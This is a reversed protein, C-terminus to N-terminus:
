RANDKRRRREIANNEDFRTAAGNSNGFPAGDPGDFKIGLASAKIAIMARTRGMLKATEAQSLKREAYWRLHRIENATWPKGPM